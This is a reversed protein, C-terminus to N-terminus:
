DRTEFKKLINNVSRKNRLVLWMTKDLDVNQEFEIEKDLQEQPLAAFNHDQAFKDKKKDKSKKKRLSKSEGRELTPLSLDYNVTVQNDMLGLRSNLFESSNMNVNRSHGEAGLGVPGALVKSSNGEEISERSHNQTLVEQAQNQFVQSYELEHFLSRDCFFDNFGWLAGSEPKFMLRFIFQDKKKMNPLPFPQKIRFKSDRKQPPDNYEHTIDMNDRYLSLDNISLMKLENSSGTLNYFKFM